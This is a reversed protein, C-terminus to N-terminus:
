DDQLLMWSRRARQLATGNSAIAFFVLLWGVITLGGYTATVWTAAISVGGILLLVEIRTILGGYMRGLGVAQAQTGLYANLLVGAIAIIGIAYQDVSAILGILIVVDAYRDIVHDLYDGAATESNTQRALAGDLVDLFGNLLVFAGGLLYWSPDNRATWLIVAALVAVVMSAATVANPTLGLRDAAAVFPSIARNSLSRFRNLAM